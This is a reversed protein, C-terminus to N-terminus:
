LGVSMAQARFDGQGATVPLTPYLAYAYVGVVVNVFGFKLSVACLSSTTQPKSVLISLENEWDVSIRKVWFAVGEQHDKPTSEKLLQSPNPKASQPQEQWVFQPM